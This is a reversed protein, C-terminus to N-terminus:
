LTKQNSDGPRQAQDNSPHYIRGGLELTEGDQARGNLWDWDTEACEMREWLVELAAKESATCKKAIRSLCRSLRCLKCSCRRRVLRQVSGARAPETQATETSPKAM